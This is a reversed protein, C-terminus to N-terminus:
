PARPKRPRAVEDRVVRLGSLTDGLRRGSALIMPIALILGVHGDWLWRLTDRTAAAWFGPRAGDSDRVVKLDFFAKGLTRGLQWEALIFYTQAVTLLTVAWGAYKAWAVITAADFPLSDGADSLLERSDADISVLGPFIKLLVFSAALVLAMDFAFALGRPVFAADQLHSSRADNGPSM